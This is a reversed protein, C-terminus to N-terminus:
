PLKPFLEFANGAVRNKSLHVDGTCQNTYMFNRCYGDSVVRLGAVMSGRSYLTIPPEPNIERSSSRLSRLTHLARVADRVRQLRESFSGTKLQHAIERAGKKMAWLRGNHDLDRILPVVPDSVFRKWWREAKVRPLIDINSFSRYSITTIGELHTRGYQRIVNM